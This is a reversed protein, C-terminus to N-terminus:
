SSSESVWWGPAEAAEGIDLTVTLRRTGDTVSYSIRQNALDGMEVTARDLWPRERQLGILRRHLDLVAAQREDAPSASAPLPPRMADDGGARAEKVGTWGFEDGYYVGPRGPLTCLLALAQAIHAPNSLQSAIRTVDHNGIFTMPVFGASFRQHRELAWALEFFNGDNLSSWIAKYLEYQTVSDLGSESVFGAYDGHIMEGFLFADPHGARIRGALEALFPRPLAYAVDFRWGDVGRDLWHNAVDAAWDLVAPNGHNLAVLERHGEFSRYRFPDGDEGAQEFDIRFWSAYESDRGRALVDCFPGFQRGVHNFVGDLLLALGRQHCAEVFSQFASEDGLRQDIRFPDVTDYGHTSSVFIPTLLVGHCGLDAVHDLWPQLRSFGDSFPGTAGVDPNTGAVGAAGLSHIQYWVM